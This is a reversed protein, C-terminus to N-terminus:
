AGGRSQMNYLATQRAFDRAERLRENVAELESVRAQLSRIERLARLLQQDSM